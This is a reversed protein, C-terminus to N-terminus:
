QWSTASEWNIGHRARKAAWYEMLEQYSVPDAKIQKIRDHWGYEELWAVVEQRDYYARYYGLPFGKTQQYRHVTARPIIEYLDGAAIYVSQWADRIANIWDCKINRPITDAYLYYHAYLDSKLYYTEHTGGCRQGVMLPRPHTTGRKRQGHLSYHGLWPDVASLETQSIWLPRVSAYIKQYKPAIEDYNFRLIHGDRLWANIESELVCHWQGSKTTRLKHVPLHHQLIHGYLRRPPVALDLALDRLMINDGIHDFISLKLTIAMMRVAHHSRKLRRAIVTYSTTAAHKKLYEIDKNPWTRHVSIGHRKAWDHLTRKDCNWQRSLEIVTYKKLAEDLIEKHVWPRENSNMLAGKSERSIRM